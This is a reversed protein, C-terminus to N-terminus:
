TTKVETARLLVILADNIVEEEIIRAFSKTGSTRYTTVNAQCAKNRASAAQAKETSWYAVLLQWQEELVRPNRDALREVETEHTDFHKQKLIAKWSKWKKGLSKVIWLEGVPAIHFKLKVIHCMVDKNKEPVRRWDHYALPALIGDRALAGLFASLTAAEKGIPEDSTNLSVPIRVGKPLAWM